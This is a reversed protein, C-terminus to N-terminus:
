VWRFQLSILYAGAVGAAIATLIQVAEILNSM